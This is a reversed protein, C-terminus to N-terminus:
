WRKLSNSIESVAICQQGKWHTHSGSGFVVYESVTIKNQDLESVYIITFPILLSWTSKIQAIRLNKQKENSLSM